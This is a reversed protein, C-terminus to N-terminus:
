IKTLSSTINYRHHSITHVHAPHHNFNLDYHHSIPHVHVPHKFMIIRCCFHKNTPSFKFVSHVSTMQLDRCGSSGTYVIIGINVARRVASSGVVAMIGDYEMNVISVKGTRSVLEVGKNLDNLYPDWLYYHSLTHSFCSFFVLPFQQLHLRAPM